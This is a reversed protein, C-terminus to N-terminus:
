NNKSTHRWIAYVRINKTYCNTLYDYLVFKWGKNSELVFLKLICEMIEPLIICALLIFPITNFRQGIYILLEHLYQVRM